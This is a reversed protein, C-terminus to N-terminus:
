PYNAKSNQEKINRIQNRSMELDRYFINIANDVGNEERLKAGMQKSKEIIAPDSTVYKIAEGLRDLKKMSCGVGLEQVRQAWFFQDGFFPKIVTPVGARMGASTTGAGGHHVVCAMQPFLWDHPVSDICYIFEPFQIVDDSPNEKRGSWGKCVIAKLGSKKVGNIIQTILENTDDVVISGFGIYIVKDDTSLFDILAKPPEWKNEPNDLNWYGTIHVWDHWDHPQPAVLSSFCYLYPISLDDINIFGIPKLNLTEKRWKNTQSARGKWFVQQFLMYSMYNFGGGLPTETTAFPHPYVTTRTWPMTFACFYPIELKEAIHMGAMATPSEIIADTGQCAEWASVLLEDVWDRFKRVGERFFKVTFMGNEVCLSILEAPNGGISAFEIGHSEIWQKCLAIFPQVDGRTGITLCTIHMPKPRIAVKLPQVFVLPTINKNALDDLIVNDATTTILSKFYLSLKDSIGDKEKSQLEGVCKCLTDICKMKHKYELHTVIRCKCLAIFPQVDGRTGITLCTIHMPKPRIAVKLPQVFVLPTINKNALDDLIVNDATTTILSKFYLSLKDSIGDKEKSQLEGVCKCLTDICKMKSDFSFFDFYFNRLDKTGIYLGKFIVGQYVTVQKTEIDRLPILVKTQIGTVRSIFGVYNPTIFIKGDIVSESEPLAFIKRLDKELAARDSRSIFLFNRQIFKVTPIFLNTTFTLINKSPKEEEFSQSDGLTTDSLRDKRRNSKYENRRYEKYLFSLDQYAIDTSQFYAFYYEDTVNQEDSIKVILAERITAPCSLSIETIFSYPIVIKISDGLNKAKFTAAEISMLWEDLAVESDAQFIWRKGLAVIKFSVSSIRKVNSITKLDLSGLPSYIDNSSEYYRMTENNLIFWYSTFIAASRNKKMLWGAKLTQGQESPLTAYFCLSFRTLFLVGKVFVNRVLWCPYESIFHDNESLEFIEKIKKEYDANEEIVSQERSHGVNAHQTLSPDRFFIEADNEDVNKDTCISANVTTYSLSALASVIKFVHTNM